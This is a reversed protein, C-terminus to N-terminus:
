FKISIFFFGKSRYKTHGGEADITAVLRRMSSIALIADLYDWMDTLLAFLEDSSGAM